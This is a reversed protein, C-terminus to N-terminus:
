VGKRLQERRIDQRLLNEELMLHLLEEDQVDGADKSAYNRMTGSRSFAMPSTGCRPAVPASGSYDKEVPEVKVKNEFDDDQKGKAAYAPPPEEDDQEDDCARYASPKALCTDFNARKCFLAGLKRKEPYRYDFAPVKHDVNSTNWEAKLKVSQEPEWKFDRKRKANAYKRTPSADVAYSEPATLAYTTGLLAKVEKRSFDEETNLPKEDAVEISGVNLFQFVESDGQQEFWAENIVKPNGTDRHRDKEPPDTPLSRSPKRGTRTLRGRSVSVAVCCANPEYMNQWTSDSRDPNAPHAQLPVRVDCRPEWRTGDGGSMRWFSRLIYEKGPVAEAPLYFAQEANRVVVLIKVGEESSKLQFDASFKLRLQLANRHWQSILVSHSAGQFDAHRQINSNEYERITTSPGYPAEHLLTIEIGSTSRM